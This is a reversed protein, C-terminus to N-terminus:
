AVNRQSNKWSSRRGRSSNGDIEDQAQSIDADGWIPWFNHFSVPQKRRGVPRLVKQALLIAVFTKNLLM